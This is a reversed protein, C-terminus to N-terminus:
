NESQVVELKPQVAEETQEIKQQERQFLSRLFGDRLMENQLDNFLKMLDGDEGDCYQEVLKFAKEIQEDKGEKTDYNYGYEDKHHVQLGVLLIEPLFLLLEEVKELDTEGDTGDVDGAKAMRSIIKGKLTPEYGFKINLEKEGIKLKM